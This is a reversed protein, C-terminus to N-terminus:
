LSQPMAAPSYVTRAADPLLGRAAAGSRISVPFRMDRKEMM